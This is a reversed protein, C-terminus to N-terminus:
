AQEVTYSFLKVPKHQQQAKEVTDQVGGSENVQLALLEDSQNVVETNRLFYTELTVEQFDMCTLSGLKKVLELQKILAEAQDTTIVGEGARKRYHAAYIELATPIIVKIHSGDPYHELALSTAEYDVNLAGGSVIGNGDNLIKTVEHRLDDELEPCTTRWSGSVGVWKIEGASKM